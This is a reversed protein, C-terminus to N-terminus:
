RTYKVIGRPPETEETDSKFPTEKRRIFPIPIPKRIKLVYHTGDHAVALIEKEDDSLELCYHVLIKRTAKWPIKCKHTGFEKYKFIKHCSSCKVIENDNLHTELSQVVM